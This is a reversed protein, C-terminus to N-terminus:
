PHDDSAESAWITAFARAVACDVTAVSRPDGHEKLAEGPCRQCFRNDACTMCAKSDGWKLNRIKELEPSQSWITALATERISGLSLPMAPCTWVEGDPKIYISSVGALCLPGDPDPAPRRQRSNPLHKMAEIQAEGTAKFREADSGGDDALLVKSDTVFSWGHEHCMRKLPAIAETNWRMIVTSLAVIGGLERFAEMSRITREFAGDVGVFEDHQQADDHYLSVSLMSLGNERLREIEDRTFFSGSTKLSILFKRKWAAAVIELLDSRMAPEGGTIALRLVGLEALQDLLQKIEALSLEDPAEQGPRRLQYCHGCTMPCRETVCLMASLPFDSTQQLKEWFSDSTIECAILKPDDAM